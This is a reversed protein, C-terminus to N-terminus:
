PNFRGNVDSKLTLTGTNLFALLGRANVRHTGFQVAVPEDTQVVAQDIDYHVQDSRIIAADGSATGTITVDGTLLLSKRDAPMEGNRATVHWVGLDKTHYDLAVDTMQVSQAPMQQEVERAHVTYRPLGAPGMETLTVDTAFYGRAQSAPATAVDSDGNGALLGYILAVAAFGAAYWVLRVSLAHAREPAHRM